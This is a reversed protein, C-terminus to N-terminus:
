IPRMPAATHIALRRTLSNHVTQVHFPLSWAVVEGHDSSERTALLDCCLSQGDVGKVRDQAEESWEIEARGNM